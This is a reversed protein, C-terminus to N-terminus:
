EARPFACVQIEYVSDQNTLITYSTVRLFDLTTARQAPTLNRFATLLNLDEETLMYNRKREITCYLIITYLTM